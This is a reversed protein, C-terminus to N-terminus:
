ADRIEEWSAAYKNEFLEKVAPLGAERFAETDVDRVITMGNESLGEILSEEEDIAKQSAWETADAAVTEVLEEDSDSLENLFTENVYLGGTQVMHSTLSYHSQVESLSFSSVQQAPGESADVVGQQLASYLEDLAVPTPSPGINEWIKVWDDLQPLRLNQGQVDDPSKVPKNSTYHRIGRYILGLNRQNGEERIKELAPQFADSEWVRKFHDWDQIIFPTDVFYYNPAYMSVPIGGGVQGEISDSQVAQIIDEESGLSGGPTIQVSIRGSTEAEINEKFRNAARVLIHEPEYTSGITMSYSEGGSESTGTTTGDGGDGGDGGGGNGGGSCGALGAVGM